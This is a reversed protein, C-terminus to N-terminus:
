FYIKVYFIFNYISFCNLNMKVIKNEIVGELYWEKRKLNKKRLFIMLKEIIEKISFM